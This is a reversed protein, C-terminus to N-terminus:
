WLTFGLLRRNGCDNGATTSTVNLYYNTSTGTPSGEIGFLTILGGDPVTVNGTQAMVTGAGNVITVNWVKSAGSTNRVQGLLIVSNAGAGHTVNINQVAPGGTGFSGFNAAAYAHGRKFLDNQLESAGIANAAIDGAVITNNIINESGIANLAMKAGTVSADAILWKDVAQKIIPSSVYLNLPATHAAIATAEVTVRIACRTANAPAGNTAKISMTSLSGGSSVSTTTSNSLYVLNGSADLGYWLVYLNVTLIAFATSTTSQPRVVVSFYYDRGPEVVNNADSDIGFEEWKGATLIGTTTLYFRYKSYGIGDSSPNLQHNLTLTGVDIYAGSAPRKYLAWMSPTEMESDRLICSTDRPNFNIPFVANSALNSTGVAAPAIDATVIRKNTENKAASRASENGYIDFYTARYWYNTEDALAEEDRYKQEYIPGLITFNTHNTADTATPYRYLRVFDLDSDTVVLNSIVIAKPRATAVIVTPWAKQVKSILVM